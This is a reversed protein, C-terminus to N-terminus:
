NWLEKRAVCPYKYKPKLKSMANKQTCTLEIMNLTSVNAPPVVKIAGAFGTGLMEWDHCVQM